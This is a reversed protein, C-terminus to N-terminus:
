THPYGPYALPTVAEVLLLTSCEFTHVSPCPICAHIVKLLAEGGQPGIHLSFMMGPYRFPVDFATDFKTIPHCVLACSTRLEAISLGDLELRQRSPHPMDVVVREFPVEIDQSSERSALPMRPDRLVVDLSANVEAV